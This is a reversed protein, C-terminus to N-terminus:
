LPILAKEQITLTKRVAEIRAAVEWITLTDAVHPALLNTRVVEELSFFWMMPLLPSRWIHQGEPGFQGALAEVIVKHVHSRRQEEQHAFVDVVADLYFRTAPTQALLPAAGLYGGHQSLAAIRALVQAHQIGDRLEAGMGVCALMARSFGAAHAAALSCQDESPTGLSTEDGRLLADVGGDVLVLTDAGLERQLTRYAETLPRVGTKDFCHILWEGGLRDELFQALWAEPCYARETAANAGVTYLNPQTFRQVAGRLGNLYSFSLSALHVRKRRAVLEHLLPLAGFVDYGGGCGALLVTDAEDLLQQFPQTFM